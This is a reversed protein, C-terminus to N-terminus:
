KVGLKFNFKLSEEFNKGDVLNQVIKFFYKESPEMFSLDVM